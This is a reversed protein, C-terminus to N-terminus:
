ELADARDAQGRLWLVEALLSVSVLWEEDLPVMSFDDAALAEFTERAKPEDGLEDYFRTVVCGWIPYNRYQFTSADSEFTDALEDLRGQARRLVYRQMSYSVRANWRQAREGLAL